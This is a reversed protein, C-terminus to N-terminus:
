TEGKQRTNEVKNEFHSSQDPRCHLAKTSCMCRSPATSLPTRPLKQKQTIQRMILKSYNVFPNARLVGERDHTCMMLLFFFGSKDYNRYMQITLNDIYFIAGSEFAQSSCTHIDM